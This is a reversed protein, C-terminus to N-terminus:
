FSYEYAFVRENTLWAYDMEERLFRHIGFVLEPVLLRELVFGWEDEEWGAEIYEALSEWEEPHEEFYRRIGRELAEIKEEATMCLRGRAVKFSSLYLQIEQIIMEERNM